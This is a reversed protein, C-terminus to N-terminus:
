GPYKGRCTDLQTCHKARAGSSRIPRTRKRTRKGNNSKRRYSAGMNKSVRTIRPHGWVSFLFMHPVATATATAMEWELLTETMDRIHRLRICWHHCAVIVTWKQLWSIQSAVIPISNGSLSADNSIVLKFSTANQRLISWGLGTHIIEKSTILYSFGLKTGLSGQKKSKPKRETCYM